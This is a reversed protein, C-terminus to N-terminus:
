YFQLAVIYDMIVALLYFTTSIVRQLYPQFVTWCRRSRRWHRVAAQGGRVDKLELADPARDGAKLGRLEVGYADNPTRETTEGDQEDLVITSWRYNVGLQLFPGGRDWRSSDDSNTVDTTRNLLATITHLMEKIVPIREDYSDLLSIPAQGNAVLALKWALNFSDQVGSNLGQGSTPSHVHGADGAVFCRGASFKNVMRINPRWPALWVLELVKLDERGTTTHIADQFAARDKMVADYDLGPFTLILSTACFGCPACPREMRSKGFEAAAIRHTIHLTRPTSVDQGLCEVRIDGIIAKDGPRSEGLFTLGLQSRVVGRAGDASVLFEFRQTEEKGDGKVITAHVGNVDQTLSVLTTGFEVECFYKQLADRLIGELRNQGIWIPEKSPSVFPFVPTPELAAM